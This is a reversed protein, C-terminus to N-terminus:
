RSQPPPPVSEQRRVERLKMAMYEDRDIEHLQEAYRETGNFWLQLSRQFQEAPPLPRSALYADIALFYRLTNREIVGRMGSSHVPQGDPKRAVVSLGPKGRGLSSLYVAMAWKAAVGFSWAYRMHVLSQGAALPVSEVTIRYDHTSLPGTPANLEVHLFEDSAGPTSFAFRAWHVDDLPQDFKRGVGAVLVM